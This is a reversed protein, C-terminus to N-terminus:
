KVFSTIESIYRDKSWSERSSLVDQGNILIVKYHQYPVNFEEALAEEDTDTDSDSYNVRIGVVKDNPLMRFAEQMLPFEARCIPCWNAYFYLVVLKGSSLASQYNSSTYDLIQASSANEVPEKPLNLSNTSPTDTTSGTQFSDRGKLYLFVGAAALLSIGILVIALVNGKQRQM